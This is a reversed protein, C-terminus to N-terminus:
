AKSFQAYKNKNKVRKEGVRELVRLKASRSRNNEIKESEGPVIPRKTLVECPLDQSDGWKKFETKVIRDELSHFSIIAFRGGQSLRGVVQGIVESLVNLENNVAIRLAQFTKTAPHVRGYRLKAPYSSEVIKALDLTTEIPRIERAQLIAKAIRHAFKEEGFDVLINMLEQEDLTNLLEKASLTNIDGVNMRMDVTAELRFSFGREGEDFHHSSVGLDAIVGQLRANEINERVIREFNVFNSNVLLVRQELKKEKILKQGNRIADPDQDFALVKIRPDMSVLSLTHGGAGFTLDAFWFEQNDSSDKLRETLLDVSERNLVSYHKQYGM